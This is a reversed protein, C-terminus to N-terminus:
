YFLTGRPLPVDLFFFFYYSIAATLISIPIIKGWSKLGLLKLIAGMLGASCIGYGVPKLLVAFIILASAVSLVRKLNKGKPFAEGQEKPLGKRLSHTFLPFSFAILTIAILLPYVGAGPQDASGLPIQLSGILYVGGLLLFCFYTFALAVNL